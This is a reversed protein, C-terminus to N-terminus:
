FESHSLSKFHCTMTKFNQSQSSNMGLDSFFINWDVGTRSISGGDRTNRGEYAVVIDQCKSQDGVPPGLTISTKRKDERTAQTKRNRCEKTSNIIRFNTRTGHIHIGHHKGALENDEDDDHRTPRRKRGWLYSLRHTRWKCKMRGLGTCNNLFQTASDLPYIM